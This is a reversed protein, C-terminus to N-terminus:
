SQKLTCSSELHQIKSSIIRYLECNWSCDKRVESDASWELKVLRIPIVSLSNGVWPLVGCGQQRGWLTRSAAALAQLPEASSMCCLIYKSMWTIPRSTNIKGSHFANAQCYLHKLFRCRCPYTQTREDSTTMSGRQVPLSPKSAKLSGTVLMQPAQYDWSLFNRGRVIDYSPFFSPDQCGRTYIM